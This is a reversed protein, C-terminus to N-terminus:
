SSRFLGRQQGLAQIEIQPSKGQILESLVMATAISNTIGMRFHGAAFYLGPIKHAEGLYPQGDITAPRLGSWHDELSNEDLQPILSHAFELLENRTADTTQNDFGVEEESSGALIRNGDLRRLLYRTGENIIHNIEVAAHFSLMQGRIPLLPIEIGLSKLLQFSWAGAAICIKEVTWEGRDTKVLFGNKQPRPILEIRSCTELRVQSLGCAKRLAALHQRPNILAEDPLLLAQSDAPLALRPELKELGSTTLRDCRIGRAAYDEVWGPLAAKDGRSRGIYLAGCKRYENDINSRQKLTMSWDRWHQCSLQHLRSVPDDLLETPAPPIMGAAAWSAVGSQPKDVVCVTYESRENLEWAISLGIVGGGIVLVDCSNM